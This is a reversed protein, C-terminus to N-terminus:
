VQRKGQLGILGDDAAPLVAQLGHVGIAAKGADVLAPKGAPGQRIRHRDLGHRHSIALLANLYHRRRAVGVAPSAHVRRKQRPRSGAVARWRQCYTKPIHRAFALPRSVKAGMNSSDGM